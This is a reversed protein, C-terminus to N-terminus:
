LKQRTEPDTQWMDRNVAELLREAINHLAYPNVEMLWQQMDRDFAFRNALEEYMWDDIM